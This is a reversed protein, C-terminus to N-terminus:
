LKSQIVILQFRANNDVAFICGLQSLAFFLELQRKAWILCLRLFTLFKLAAM